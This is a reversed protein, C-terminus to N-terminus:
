ECFLVRNTGYGTIPNMGGQINKRLNISYFDLPACVRLITHLNTKM